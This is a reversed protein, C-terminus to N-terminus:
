VAVIFVNYRPAAPRMRANYPSAQIPPRAPYRRFPCPAPFGYAHPQQLGHAPSKGGPTTWVPMAGAITVARLGYCVPFVM